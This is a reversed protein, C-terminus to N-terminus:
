RVVDSAHKLVLKFTKAFHQSCFSPTWISVLPNQCHQLCFHSLMRTKELSSYWVCFSNGYHSLKFLTQNLSEMRGPIWSRRCLKRQQSYNVDGQYLLHLWTKHPSLRQEVGAPAFAEQLLPSPWWGVVLATSEIGQTEKLVSLPPQPQTCHYASLRSLLTHKNKKKCSNLSCNRHVWHKQSNEGDTSILLM